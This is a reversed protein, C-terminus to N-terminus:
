LDLAKNQKSNNQRVFILSAVTTYFILSYTGFFLARPMWFFCGLSLLLGAILFVTLRSNILDIVNGKSVIILFPLMMQIDYYSYRGVPIFFDAILCILSGMLFISNLEKKGLVYRFVYWILFLMTAVFAIALINRKNPLDLSNLVEYLSTNGLYGELKNRVNPDFGEVIKPYIINSDSLIRAELPLYTNLDLIGTMGLMALFYQKWIFTGVVAWSLSLSFVLGLFGGLLFYYRQCILFPLFFLIFSPRLSAAIGVFFGSAIHNLKSDKNLLFWALSLLLVYVIYIQGSNIHFRWFLSNIFFFSVALVLNTRFQNNSSKLFLFVTTLFAAWQVVLWIVKQQLYSFGAIFSHIVLVTPPVSLKSLIESPIALPDYFIEPLGPKWKFFYPDIGELMLRVGVVRNRLDTGPYKITNKLDVMLGIITIFVAALLLFNIIKNQKSLQM